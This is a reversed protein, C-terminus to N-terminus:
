AHNTTKCTKAGGQSAAPETAEKRFLAKLFGPSDTRQSRSGFIKIRNLRQGKNGRGGQRLQSHNLEQGVSEKSSLAEKFGGSAM